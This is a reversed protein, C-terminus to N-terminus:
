ELTKLRSYVHTLQLKPWSFLTWKSMNQQCIQFHSTIRKPLSQLVMEPDQKEEKIMFCKEPLWFVKASAM